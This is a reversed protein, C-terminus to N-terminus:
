LYVYIGEYTQHHSTGLPEVTGAVEFLSINSKFLLVQDKFFRNDYERVSLSHSFVM